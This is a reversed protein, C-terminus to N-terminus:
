IVFYCQPRECPGPSARNINEAVALFREHQLHVRYRRRSTRATSSSRNWVAMWAQYASGDANYKDKLWWHQRANNEAVARCRCAHAKLHGPFLTIVRVKLKWFGVRSVAISGSPRSCVWSCPQLPCSSAGAQAVAVCNRSYKLSCRGCRALYCYDYVFVVDADEPKYM